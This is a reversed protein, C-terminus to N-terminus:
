DFASAPTIECTAFPSCMMNWPEKWYMLAPDLVVVGDMMGFEQVIRYIYTVYVHYYNLCYRGDIDM